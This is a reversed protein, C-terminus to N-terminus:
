AMIRAPRPSVQKTTEAETFAPIQFRSYFMVLTPEAPLPSAVAAMGTIEAAAGDRRRFNNNVELCSQLQSSCHQYVRAPM